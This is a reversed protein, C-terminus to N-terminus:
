LAAIAMRSSSRRSASRASITPLPEPMMSQRRFSPLYEYKDNGIVLAVHRGPVRAISSLALASAAEGQSMALRAEVRAIRDAAERGGIEKKAPDM